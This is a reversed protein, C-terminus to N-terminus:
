GRPLVAPREHPISVYFTTGEGIESEFTINGGFRGKINAYSMYLGLGTGQKGKTTVMERFLKNKIEEPIGRGYDRIAFVVMNDELFIKFDIDGSGGEYSHIANIIINDFVQVLSNIDGQLQIDGDVKFDTVLNCHFKKLEHNMLLDVRKVVEDVTFSQNSNRPTQMAQEKVTTIIDSMYSCHPKIKELWSLMEEAIEQHDELTVENDNISLHYEFVLDKLAEIAGSISMIPTKLNHAIGGILQGLSALREKEMLIAQNEKITQLDKKNQTIDKFLVITGLHNGKTIIPTIEITFYRNFPGSRINSEFSFTRKNKKAAEIYKKFLEVDIGELNESTITDIFSVNRNIYLIGKFMETFAKNYDVIKTEENIVVFGDSILDVVRNMAIPVINLFDYKQIAFIYCIGAFSFSVPTALASLKFIKFSYLINVVLPFMTGLVIIISQKSFLGSNKISFYILFYLGTLVYIYLIISHIPFYRGYIIKSEDFSYKVYFLQHYDNTLLILYSITPPVFLLWHGANMEIRTHAFIIGTFLLAVPVYCVGFYSILMLTKGDSGYMYHMYDRVLVALCWIFTLIMNSLFAYHIQKKNEIKIIYFSILLTIIVSFHLLIFILDTKM